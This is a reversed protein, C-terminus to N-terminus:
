NYIFLFFCVMVPGGSSSAPRKQSFDLSRLAAQYGISPSVVSAKPVLVSSTPKSLGSALSSALKKASSYRVATIRM